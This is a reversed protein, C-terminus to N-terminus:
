FPIDDTDQNVPHDSPPLQPTSERQRRPQPSGPPRQRSGTKRGRWLMDVQRLGAKAESVTLEEKFNVRGSGLRNVWAVRAFQYDEGQDNQGEVVEVTISVENKDVGVFETLESGPEMGCVELSELIRDTTNETFAPAWSVLWGKYPGDDLIQFVLAFQINGNKSRGFTADQSGTCVARYKGAEIM